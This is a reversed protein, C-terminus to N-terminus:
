GFNCRYSFVPVAKKYFRFLLVNFNIFVDDRGIGKILEGIKKVLNFYFSLLCLQKKNGPNYM